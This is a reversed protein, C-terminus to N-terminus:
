EVITTVKPLWERSLFRLFKDVLDVSTFTKGISFLNDIISTFRLHLHEITENPFMTFSEYKHMSKMHEKWIIYADSKFCPSMNLFVSESLSM